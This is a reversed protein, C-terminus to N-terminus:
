RADARSAPTLIVTKIEFPEFELAIDEGEVTLPATVRELLDCVSAAAVDFGTRLHAKCSAGLCEYMRLVIDGSDEAQKVVDLVVSRTDLWCLPGFTLGQCLHPPQQFLGAQRIVDSLEGGHPYIAYRLEHVGEGQAGQPSRILDITMLNDNCAYGHGGELMLAAGRGTQSLDAWDHAGALAMCRERATNRHAPREVHGFQVGCLFRGGAVNIPFEARLLKGNEHWDIRTIVDVRASSANIEVTQTLTSDGFAYEAIRRCVAGEVESKVSRQTFAGVRRRLVDEGMRWIDGDDGYVSLQNGAGRLVEWGQRKDLLAAMRGREDFSVRLRDNELVNEEARLAPLKARRAGITSSASMPPLSVLLAEGAGCEEDAPLWMDVTWAHPNLVVDLGGGNWIQWVLASLRDSLEKRQKLADSRVGPAPLGGRQLELARKWINSLEARPYTAGRLYMASLIIESMRLAGMLRSDARQVDDFATLAGQWADCAIEGSWLPLEVRSRRLRDFFDSARERRMPPLGMLDSMRELRENQAADLGNEGGYLLMAGESVGIERFGREARLASGPMATGVRGEPPVHALVRTGDLGQWWFSTFPFEWSEPRAANMALVYPMGSLAMIQPLQACCMRAGALWMTSVDQGFSGAWLRKGMLIQRVLAEGSALGPEAEAWMGGLLEWRGQEVRERVRAYVGEDETRVREYRWAGSAGAIMADSKEMMYLAGAFDRVPSTRGNAKEGIVGLASLAFGYDGSTRKLEPALACVAALAREDSMDTMLMLARELARAIMGRRATGEPLNAAMDSLTEMDYYLARMNTQVVCLECMGMVGGQSARAWLEIREGGMAEDTLMLVGDEPAGARAPRLACLAAGEDDLILLEAGADIRLALACGEAQAPTEGYIRLLAGCSEPSWRKGEELATRAGRERGAFDPAACAECRLHEVPIYINDRVDRMRERAHKLARELEKVPMVEGCRM